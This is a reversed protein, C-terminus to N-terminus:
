KLSTTHYEIKSVIFTTDLEVDTQTPATPVIPSQEFEPQYEPPGEAAPPPPQVSNLQNKLQKKKQKREQEEAEFQRGVYVGISYLGIGSLILFWM